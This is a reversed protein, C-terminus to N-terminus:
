CSGSSAPLLIYWRVYLEITEGEFRRRHYISDRAIPKTMRPVGIPTRIRRRRRWHVLVRGILVKAEECIV